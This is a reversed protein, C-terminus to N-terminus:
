GEGILTGDYPIKYIADRDNHTVRAAHDDIEDRVLRACIRWVASEKGPNDEAKKIWQNSADLLNAIFIGESSLRDPRPVPSGPLNEDSMWRLIRRIM